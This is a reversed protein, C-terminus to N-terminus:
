NLELKAVAKPVTDVSAAHSVTSKKFQEALKAGAFGGATVAGVTALLVGITGGFETRHGSKGVFEMARLALYSTGGSVAAGTAMAVAGGIEVPLGGTFFAAVTAVVGGLIAAGAIIGHALKDGNFRM